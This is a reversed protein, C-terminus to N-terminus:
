AARLGCPRDPYFRSSSVTLVVPGSRGRSCVYCRVDYNTPEPGSASMAQTSPPLEATPWLLWCSVVPRCMASTRIFITMLRFVALAKPRLHGCLELLKGVVHHFLPSGSTQKQCLASM